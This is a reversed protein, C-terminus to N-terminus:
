FYMKQFEAWHFNIFESSSDEIIGVYFIDEMFTVFADWAAFNGKTTKM